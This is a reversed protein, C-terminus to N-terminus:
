ESVQRASRDEVVGVVGHEDEGAVARNQVFALRHQTVEAEVGRLALLAVGGLQHMGVIKPLHLADEVVQQRALLALDRASPATAPKSAMTSSASLSSRTSERRPRMADCGSRRLMSDPSATHISASRACLRRRGTALTGM